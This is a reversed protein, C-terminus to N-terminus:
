SIAIQKAPRPKAEEKKPLTIALIGDKHSAAIQEANVTVPLSFSRKFSSYSFERRMYKEEKEEKNMEKEASITLLNNELDIKFDNKDLGPAAVEIKFADANEVINVAPMSIGTQDNFFSGILDRGFFDDILSPMHTRTRLVPLM